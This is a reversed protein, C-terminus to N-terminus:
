SPRILVYSVTGPLTGSGVPSGGSDEVYYLRVTNAGTVYGTVIHRVLPTSGVFPVANLTPVVVDGAAAGTVTVDKYSHLGSITWGAAPTTGKGVFSAGGVPTGGITISGGAPLAIGDFNTVGM